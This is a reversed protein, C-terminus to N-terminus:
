SSGLLISHKSRTDGATKGISRDIKVYSTKNRQVGLLNALGNGQIPGTISGYAKPAQNLSGYSFIESHAHKYIHGPPLEAALQQQLDSLVKHLYENGPLSTKIDQSSAVTDALSKTKSFYNNDGQRM